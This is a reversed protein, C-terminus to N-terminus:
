ASCPSRWVFSRQIRQYHELHVNIYGPNYSEHNKGQLAVWGCNRCAPQSKWWSLMFYIMFASDLCWWEDSLFTTLLCALLYNKNFLSCEYFLLSMTNFCRHNSIEWCEDPLQLLMFCSNCKLFSLFIAMWKTSLTLGMENGPDGVDTTNMALILTWSNFM